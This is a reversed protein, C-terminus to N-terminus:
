EYIRAAMFIDGLIKWDLQSPPTRGQNKYFGDMSGVWSALAELFTGLNKNEWDQPNDKFDKRLAYVFSVFDERSRISNVQDVLAM